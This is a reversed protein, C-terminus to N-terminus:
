NVSRSVEFWKNGDHILQMTDDASSTFAASLNVTDVTAAATDTVTVLGDVFKLTLLMGKVGGTITALTNAGADGTIEMYDGVVAFTTVAAALTIEPTGPDGYTPIWADVGNVEGRVFGSIIGPTTLSSIPNVASAASTAEFNIFGETIDLQSLGLCEVAAAATVEVNLQESLTEQNIGLRNINSAMNGTIIPTNSGGAFHIKLQGDTGAADTELGPGILINSAGTTTSDGTGNGLFTNSGGTTLLLGTDKGICLNGAGTTLAQCSRGGIATNNWTNGEIVLLANTGIAVNFQGTHATVASGSLAAKGIGLNNSGETYRLAADGIAILDGQDVATITNAGIAVSTNTAVIGTGSNKGICINNAGAAVNLGASDGLFTNGGGTTLNSGALVGFVECDGGSGGGPSTIGGNANVQGSFVASTTTLSGGLTLAGGVTLAITATDIVLIDSFTGQQGITIQRAAADDGQIQIGQDLAFLDINAM